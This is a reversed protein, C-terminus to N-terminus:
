LSQGESDFSLEIVALDTLSDNTGSNSENGPVSRYGAASDMTNVPPRQKVMQFDMLGGSVEKGCSVHGNDGTAESQNIAVYSCTGSSGEGNSKSDLNYVAGGGRPGQGTAPPVNVDHITAELDAIHLPKHLVANAGHEFFFDRDAELVNGTVGIIPIMVGRRRLEKTATPGNM